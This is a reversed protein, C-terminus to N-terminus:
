LLLTVMVMLIMLTPATIHDLITWEKLSLGFVCETTTVQCDHYLHIGIVCLVGIILRIIIFAARSVKEHLVLM